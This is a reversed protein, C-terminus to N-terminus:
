VGHEWEKKDAAGWVSREVLSAMKGSGEDIKAFMFSEFKTVVGDVTITGTM